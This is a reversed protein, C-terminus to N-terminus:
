FVAANKACELDPGMMRLMRRGCAKPAQARASPAAAARGAAAVLSKRASMMPRPLAPQPM